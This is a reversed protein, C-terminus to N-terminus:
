FKDKEYRLFNFFINSAPSNVLMSMKRMGYGQNEMKKYVEKMMKKVFSM